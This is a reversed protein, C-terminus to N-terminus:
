AFSISDAENVTFMVVAAIKMAGQATHTTAIGPVGEPLELFITEEEVRTVQLDHINGMAVLVHIITKYVYLIVYLTHPWQVIGDFRVCKYMMCSYM